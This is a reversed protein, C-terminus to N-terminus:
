LLDGMDDEGGYLLHDIQEEAGEVGDLPDDFDDDDSYPGRERDNM